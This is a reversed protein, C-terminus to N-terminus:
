SGSGGKRQQVANQLQIRWDPLKANKNQFDVLTPSTKPAVLGATISRVPPRAPVPPAVSQRVPPPAVQQRAPQQPRPIPADPRPIAGPLPGSTIKTQLEERVTDNRMAGCTPCISLTPALSRECVPCKM